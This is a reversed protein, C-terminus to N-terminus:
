MALAALAAAGAAVIGAVMVGGMVHSKREHRTLVTVPAGALNMFEQHHGHVFGDPVSVGSPDEGHEHPWPDFPRPRPQLPGTSLPGTSTGGIDYMSDRGLEM